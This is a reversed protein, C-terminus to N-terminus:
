NSMMNSQMVVKEGRKGRKEKEEKERGDAPINLSVDVNFEHESGM